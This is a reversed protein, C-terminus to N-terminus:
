QQLSFTVATTGAPLSPLILLGSPLISLGAKNHLNTMHETHCAIIVLV